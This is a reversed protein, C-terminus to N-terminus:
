DLPNLANYLNYVEVLVGVEVGVGGVNECRVRRGLCCPTWNLLYQRGVYVTDM